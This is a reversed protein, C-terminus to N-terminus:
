TRSWRRHVRAPKGYQIQCAMGCTHASCRGPLAIRREPQDVFGAGVALRSRGTPVEFRWKWPMSRTKRFQAAQWVLVTRM